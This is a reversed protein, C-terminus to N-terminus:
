YLMNISCGKMTLVVYKDNVSANIYHNKLELIHQRVVNPTIVIALNGASMKNRDEQKSVEHLFQFM